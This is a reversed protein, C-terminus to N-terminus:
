TMDKIILKFLERDLANELKTVARLSQFVCKQRNGFKNPASGMEIGLTICGQLHSQWGKEVDGAFNAPHILIYSRGQVNLLHYTTRKFAPSYRREVEYEGAPICSVNPANDRWPLELSYGMFREGLMVVGFTGQDSTTFRYIVVTKM